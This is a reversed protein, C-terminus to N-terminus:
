VSDRAPGHHRDPFPFQQSADPPGAQGQCSVVGSKFKPHGTDADTLLTDPLDLLLRVAYSM